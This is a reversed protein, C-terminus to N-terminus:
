GANKLPGSKRTVVDQSVHQTQPITQATVHHETNTMGTLNTGGSNINALNQLQRQQNVQDYEQLSSFKNLQIYNPNSQVFQSGSPAHTPSPIAM